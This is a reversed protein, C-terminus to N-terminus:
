RIGLPKGALPRSEPESGPRTCPCLQEGTVSKIVRRRTPFKFRIDHDTRLVVQASKWTGSFLVTSPCSWSNLLPLHLQAATGRTGPYAYGHVRTGTVAHVPYGPQLESRPHRGHRYAQAVEALYGPVSDAAKNPVESCEM